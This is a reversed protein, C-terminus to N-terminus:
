ELRYATQNCQFNTWTSRGSKYISFWVSASYNRIDDRSDIDLRYDVEIGQEKLEKAAYNFLPIIFIDIKHRFLQTKEEFEKRNPDKFETQSSVINKIEHKLGDRYEDRMIASNLGAIESLM